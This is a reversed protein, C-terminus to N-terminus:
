HAGRVLTWSYDGQGAQYHCSMCSNGGAGAADAASQYYTEMVTNTVGSAPFAGGSDQPYVGGAELTKFAKPTSPWQTSVLQYYQFVTGRLASQWATNLASTDSPIPNLRTVQVPKRETAPQLQPSMSPPRNAWGGITQPRGTGNNFSYRQGAVPGVTPPVNDVHEFTSWVWQPFQRPKQSIHFGILGVRQVKCQRSQPDFVAADVAYYRSADDVGAVLVKWAAKVMIAPQHAVQLDSM